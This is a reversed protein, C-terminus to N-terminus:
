VVGTDTPLTRALTKGLLQPKDSLIADVGWDALRLMSAKDNVTWVFIKRAACHVL